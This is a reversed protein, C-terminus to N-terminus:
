MQAMAAQGRQSIEQPTLDEVHTAISWHHGFPDEVIGYRDGWFQDALPMIPRAGAAVAQQYVKDADTVYLHITVPTGGLSKPGKANMEPFEDNLMLPSGGIMLQAHMIRGDPGPMRGREEAGFAKKYFEIAQAAGGIVLHPTLAHFGEPIPKTAKAM